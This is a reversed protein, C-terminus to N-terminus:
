PGAKKKRGFIFYLAAAAGVGLAIKENSSLNDLFALPGDSVTASSGDDIQSGDPAGDPGTPSGSSSGGGSSGSGASGGGADTAGSTTTGPTTSGPSPFIPVPIGGGRRSIVKTPVSTAQGARGGVPSNTGAGYGYGGGGGGGPGSGGPLGCSGGDIGCIPNGASVVQTSRPGITQKFGGTNIAGLAVRGNALRVLMRDHNASRLVKARRQRRANAVAGPTASALVGVGALHGFKDREYSM